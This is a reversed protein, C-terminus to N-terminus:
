DVERLDFELMEAIDDDICAVKTLTKKELVSIIEDIPTVLSYLNHRHGKEPEASRSSVWGMARLWRLARDVDQQSMKTGLELERHKASEVNKLFTITRAVFPKMGQKILLEVFEEDREDLVQISEPKM